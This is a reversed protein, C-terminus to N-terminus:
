HKFMYPFVKDVDDLYLMRINSYLFGWGYGTFQVVAAAVSLIGVRFSRNQAWSSLFIAALYVGLPLLIVPAFVGGLVSVLMFVLFFSPFMYTLRSDRPVDPQPHPAGPRFGDNPPLITGTYRPAQSLRVTRSVLRHDPREAVLRQTYEIDEGVRQHAFGGARRFAEASIVMNYSRLQRRRQHQGEIRRASGGTTLFSTMAYNIAKQVDTFSRHARDPGAFADAPNRRSLLRELTQFYNEPLLVDSDLIVFYDGRAHEMGYNRSDGPGSNETYFYRVPLTASWKECEAQSTLSSGDEVIIVEYDLGNEAQRAISGLLADTEDPRNYVPVVISISINKKEPQEM